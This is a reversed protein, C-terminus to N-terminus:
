RLLSDSGYLIQQLYIVALSAALCAVGFLFYRDTIRFRSWGVYFFRCSLIWAACLIKFVWLWAPLQGQLPAELFDTIGFLVFGFSAALISRKQRTTSPRIYFPLGIAIAFWAAGELRNFIVYFFFPDDM